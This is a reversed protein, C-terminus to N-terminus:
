PVGEFGAYQSLFQRLGSAEFQGMDWEVDELMWTYREKIRYVDVQIDKGRADQVVEQVREYYTGEFTDLRALNDQNVDVRVLGRVTGEGKVIGPYNEDKFKLRRYGSLQADIRKHEGIVIRSWVEDYMLTGYVFVNTVTGEECERMACHEIAAVESRMADHM